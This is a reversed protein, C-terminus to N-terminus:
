SAMKTLILYLKASHGTQNVLINPGISKPGFAIINETVNTWDFELNAFEPNKLGESIEGKLGQLYAKKDHSSPGKNTLYEQANRPLPIVRIKMRLHGDQSEKEVVGLPLETKTFNIAKSPTISEKFPVLPKSVTIDIKAFRDRLDNM